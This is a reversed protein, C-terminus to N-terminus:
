IAHAACDASLLILKLCFDRIFARKGSIGEIIEDACMPYSNATVM